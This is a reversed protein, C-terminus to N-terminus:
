DIIFAWDGSHPSVVYCNGKGDPLAGGYWFGPWKMQTALKFAAAQHNAEIGLADDWPVYITQAACKAQVRSSFKNSYGIYKTVIAQRTM